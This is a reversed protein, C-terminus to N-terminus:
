KAEEENSIKIITYGITIFYIVYCMPDYLPNGTFCYLLFFLQYLFNFNVIINNNEKKAIEISKILSGLM